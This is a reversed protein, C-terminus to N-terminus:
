RRTAGSASERVGVAAGSGRPDSVGVWEGASEDWAIAQVRAFYSPTSRPDPQLGHRRLADVASAPWSIADHMEMVVVDGTPHFRPQAMAAPLSMGRDVVRSVVAVLASIIRRAGSAGLVLAPEGDRFVILPSQSSFPRDGPSSADLYGMTTAYLFGLGPSAVRSGMAPGLSQTLAVLGGRGDAVSLHTTFPPEAALARVQNGRAGVEALAPDRVSGARQAAWEKSTITAAHEVPPGLDAVRDDFSLRLAQAALAMWEPSGARDTLDFQELIQLAEITTAGSAPLYTGTLDYGRYSGHVVLSRRARYEALDALGVFGGHRELDVAISEAIWGRFCGHWRHVTRIPGRRATKRRSPRFGSLLTSRLRTLREM